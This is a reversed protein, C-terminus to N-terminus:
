EFFKFLLLGTLLVILMVLLLDSCFSFDSSKFVEFVVTVPPAFVFIQFPIIGLFVSCEHLPVDEPRWIVVKSQPLM